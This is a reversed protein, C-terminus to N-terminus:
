YFVARPNSHKKPARAIFNGQAPAPSPAPATTTPSSATPPTTAPASTEPATTPPPMSAAPKAASSPTSGTAHGIVTKVQDLLKKAESPAGLDTRIFHYSREDTCACAKLFGDRDRWILIPYTDGLGAGKLLPAMQNVYDHTSNVVATRAWDHEAPKLDSATWDKHSTAMWRAYLNWDRNIWLEAVTAREAATSEQLGEHDARAFVIVRTDVNAAALKPFEDRQYAICDACDRFSIMWLVPGTRGPSVWDSEDLLHQIETQNKAITVPRFREYFNWYAWYGGGAIVAGLLVAVLSFFLFRHHHQEM